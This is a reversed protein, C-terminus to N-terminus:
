EELVRVGIDRNYLGETVLANAHGSIFKDSLCVKLVVTPKRLYEFVEFSAAEDAFIAVKAEFALVGDELEDVGVCEEIVSKYLLIYATILIEPRALRAGRDIVVPASKGEFAYAKEM